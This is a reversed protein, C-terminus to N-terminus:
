KLLDDSIQFLSGDPSELLWVDMAPDSDINGYIAIKYSDPTIMCDRCFVKVQSGIGWKYWNPEFDLKISDASPYTGKQVKHLDLIQHIKEALAKVEASKDQKFKDVVFYAVCGLAVIGAGWLIKKKM